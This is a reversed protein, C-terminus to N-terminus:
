ARRRAADRAGPVGPRPRGRRLLRGARDRRRTIRHSSRDPTAHDAAHGLRYPRRQGRLGHANRTMWGRRDAWRGTWVGGSRDCPRHCSAGSEPVDPAARRRRVAAGVPVGTGNGAGGAGSMRSRADPSPGPRSASEHEDPVTMPCRVPAHDHIAAAATTSAGARRRRRASTPRGAALGATRRTPRAACRSSRRRRDDDSDDGRVVLARTGLPDGGRDAGLVEPHGRRRRRSPGRRSTGSTRSAAPRARM